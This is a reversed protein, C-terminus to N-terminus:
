LTNPACLWHERASGDEQIEHPQGAWGRGACVLSAAKGDLHWWLRRERVLLCRRGWGSRVANWSIGRPIGGGRQAWQRAQCASSHLLRQLTLLKAWHSEHLCAGKPGAHLADSQAIIPRLGSNRCTTLLRWSNCKRGKYLISPQSLNFPVNNAFGAIILLVFLFHSIFNKHPFFLGTPDAAPACVMRQLRTRVAAARPLWEEWGPVHFAQGHFAAHGWWHSCQKPATCDWPPVQWSKSGWFM